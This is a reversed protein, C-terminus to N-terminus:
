LIEFGRYQLYGDTSKMWSKTICLDRRCVSRCSAISEVQRSDTEFLSFMLGIPHWFPCDYLFVLASGNATIGMGAFTFSLRDALVSRILGRAFCCQRSLKAYLMKAANSSERNDCLASLRALSNVSLGNASTVSANVQIYEQKADDQRTKTKM